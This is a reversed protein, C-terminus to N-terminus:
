LSLPFAPSHPRPSSPSSTTSVTAHLLSPSSLFFIQGGGGGGAVVLPDSVAALWTLHSCPWLFPKTKNNKTPKPKPKAAHANINCLLLTQLATLCSPSVHPSLCRSAHYPQGLPSPHSQTGSSASALPLLHLDTSVSHAWPTPSPLGLLTSKLSKKFSLKYCLSSNRRGGRPQQIVGAVQLSAAEQPKLVGPHLSSDKRAKPETTGRLDAIDDLLFMM